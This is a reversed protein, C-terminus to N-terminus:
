GQPRLTAIKPDLKQGFILALNFNEFKLCPEFM